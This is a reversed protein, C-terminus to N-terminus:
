GGMYRSRLRQLMDHFEEHKGPGIRKQEIKEFAISLDDMTQPTLRNAAMRFLVNDEKDIHQRLLAIYSKANQVFTDADLTRGGLAKTMAKITDRGESHESLMMGIPGEDRPIGAKQMAPFLEDEEKAHHCRDVFGTLFAMIQDLDERAVEGGSDLRDAVKTLINLMLKIAEHETKLEEIPGM